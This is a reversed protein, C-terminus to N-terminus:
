PAAVLACGEIWDRRLKRAARDANTSFDARPFFWQHVSIFLLSGFDRATHTRRVGPNEENTDM